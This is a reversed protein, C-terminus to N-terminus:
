PLAAHLHARYLAEYQGASTAWSRDLAMARRQLARWGAADAFCRAARAMADRLADAAPHDFVFGNGDPAQADVVTDALGGTRHVVPLTGYAQSYMQNLGCPEFRSPMLFADSGAEIRHALGEDFGLHVAVRGPYRHALESWGAELAPDGKGLVAIQHGESVLWPVVAQVLDVGKQDTLRSVLGFVMGPAAADLRLEHQLARRNVAKTPLDAADYRAALLPDTAPNWADTDIGNLIGFLDRARERLVGDLGCGGAPTQIEAAYTPSVTTIVDSFRLGGKLLCAQDWHRLGDLTLWDAPLGLAVAQSMPFMGQFALNHVTFVSLTRRDPQRQRLCAAALGTPWDNAHLVDARWGAAAGDAVRAAVDCLFAFRRLGDEFDTGGPDAYPGGARDYFGPCDLLLLQLGDADVEALVAEPWPGEAPLLHRRTAVALLSRLPRYAPMLVRTDHGRQRLAKPLAASVDGLGGTKIWPSCEPTVFLVSLPRSM